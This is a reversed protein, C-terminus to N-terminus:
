ELYLVEMIRFFFFHKRFFDQKKWGDKEQPKNKTRRQQGYSNSPTNYLVSTATAELSSGNSIHQQRVCPLCM